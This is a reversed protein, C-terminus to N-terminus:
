WLWEIQGVLRWNLCMWHGVVRVCVGDIGTSNMEAEITEMGLWGIFDRMVFRITFKRFVSYFQSFIQFKHKM